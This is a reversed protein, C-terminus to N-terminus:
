ILINIISNPDFQAAQPAVDLGLGVGLPSKTSAGYDASLFFKSSGPFAVLGAGAADM